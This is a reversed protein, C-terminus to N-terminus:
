AHELLAPQRSNAALAVIADDDIKAVEVLNDNFTPGLKRGPGFQDFEGREQLIAFGRVLSGSLECRRRENYRSVVASGVFAGRGNSVKVTDGNTIGRSRADDPHIILM